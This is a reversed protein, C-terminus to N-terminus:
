YSGVLLGRAARRTPASGSSPAVGQLASPEFLKWGAQWAGHTRIQLTINVLAMAELARAMVLPGADIPRFGISGVLDLVTAKATRDDGAVFSDTAIGDVLPDALRTAFATNFAKVVRAAPVRAQIHEAASSGDLVSAPDAPNAPNTADILIKGDVTHGLDGLLSDANLYPVALIM